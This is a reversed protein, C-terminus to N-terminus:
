VFGFGAVPPTIIAAAPVILVLAIFCLKDVGYTIIKKPGHVNTWDNNDDDVIPPFYFVFSMRMRNM